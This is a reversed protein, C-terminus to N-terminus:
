SILPLFRETSTTGTTATSEQKTKQPKSTNINSHMRSFRLCHRHVANSSQGCESWEINNFYETRVAEAASCRHYNRIALHDTLDNVSPSHVPFITKAAQRQDVLLGNASRDNRPRPCGHKRPSGDEWIIEHTIDGMCKRNRIVDEWWMRREPMVGAATRKVNKKLWGRRHHVMREIGSRWGWRWKRGSTYTGEM